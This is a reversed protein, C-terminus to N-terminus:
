LRPHRPRNRRSQGRFCSTTKSTSTSICTEKWGCWNKTSARFTPCADEPLRYDGTAERIEVLAQGASEHEHEMQRIPNGVTGFCAVPGQPGGKRHAEAAVIYPFLVEEEKRLHSTLEADLANYRDKVHCLMAGHEAVHAQLVKRVLDGIRPLAEHMYAHHTQLIHDILEHLPAANWDKEAAATGTSTEVLAAEIDRLLDPLAAQGEPAAEALCKGGGCCYDIGHKEFVERTQPYQGVLARVTTTGNVQISMNDTKRM